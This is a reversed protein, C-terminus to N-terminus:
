ARPLASAPGTDAELRPYGPPPDGSLWATRQRRRHARALRRKWAFLPAYAPDRVFDPVIELPDMLSVAAIDALTLAEGVMFGTRAVRAQLAPLLAGVRERSERVRDPYISFKRRLAPELVRLMIPNLWRMPARPWLLTGLLLSPNELAVQYGVRRSDPGLEDDCTKEIALVERRAAADRPLLPPDPCVEELYAAIAASGQVVRGGDELVPVDGRAGLDLVERRTFPNVQVITYPRRKYDLCFRAKECFHSWFIDFLVTAM